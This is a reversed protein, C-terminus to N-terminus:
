RPGDKGGGGDRYTSDTQIREWCRRDADNFKRQIQQVCERGTVLMRAIILPDKEERSAEFEKRAEAKLKMNWPIGKEDCWHFAKATRLIERYLSKAENRTVSARLHKAATKGASPIIITPPMNHQVISESSINSICATETLYGSKNQQELLSTVKAENILAIRTNRM